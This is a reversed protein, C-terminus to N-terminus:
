SGQAPVGYSTSGQCNEGTCRDREGVPRLHWSTLSLALAQCTTIPSYHAYNFVFILILRHNKAWSHM